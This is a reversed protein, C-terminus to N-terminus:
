TVVYLYCAKHHVLVRGLPGVFHVFSGYICTLESSSYAWLRIWSFQLFKLVLLNCDKPIRRLTHQYVPVSSESLCLTEM